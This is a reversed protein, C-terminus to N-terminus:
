KIELYSIPKERWPGTLIGVCAPHPGHVGNPSRQVITNYTYCLVIDFCNKLM